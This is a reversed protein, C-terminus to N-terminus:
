HGPVSTVASAQGNADYAVVKVYSRSSDPAPPALRAWLLTTKLPAMWRSSTTIEDSVAFDRVQGCYAGFVTAQGGSKTITLGHFGPESLDVDSSAIATLRGDPRETALVLRYFAVATHTDQLYLVIKADGDRLGTDVLGGVPAAAAVSIPTPVPPQVGAHQYLKLGVTGGILVALVALTGGGIALRRRIRARGGLRIIRDVDVEAFHEDPTRAMAERLREIDNM